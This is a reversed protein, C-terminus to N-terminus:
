RTLVFSQLEAAIKTLDNLLDSKLVFFYQVINDRKDLIYNYKKELVAVYFSLKDYQAQLANLQVRYDTACVSARSSNEVASRAALDDNLTVADFFARDAIDKDLLCQRMAERLVWLRLFTTELQWEADRLLLDTAVIYSDLVSQKDTSQDLLAIVDTTISLQVQQTLSLLWLEAGVFVNHHQLHLVFLDVAM